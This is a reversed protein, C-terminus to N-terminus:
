RFEVYSNIKAGIVLIGIEKSFDQTPVELITGMHNTRDRFTSFSFDVFSYHGKVPFFFFFVTHSGSTM